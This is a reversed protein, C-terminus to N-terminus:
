MTYLSNIFAQRGDSASNNKQEDILAAQKANDKDIPIPNGHHITANVATRYILREPVDINVSTTVKDRFTISNSDKDISYTILPSILKIKDDFDKPLLAISKEVISDQLSPKAKVTRKRQRNGKGTILCQILEKKSSSQKYEINEQDLRSQLEHIPLQELNFENDHSEDLFSENTM